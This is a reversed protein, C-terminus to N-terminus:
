TIDGKTCCINEMESQIKACKESMCKHVHACIPYHNHIAQPQFGDNLWLILLYHLNHKGFLSMLTYEKGCIRSHFDPDLWYLYIHSTEM